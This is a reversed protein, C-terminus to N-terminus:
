YEITLANDAPPTDTTLSNAVADVLIAYKASLQGIGAVVKAKIMKWQDSPQEDGALHCIYADGLMGGIANVADDPTGKPLYDRAMKLVSLVAFRRTKDSLAIGCKALSGLEDIHRTTVTMMNGNVTIERYPNPYSVTSGTEIDTIQGDTSIDNSHLHGTFIVKVGLQYLLAAVKENDDVLYEPLVQKELSFHPVVGHHMIAIIKCGDATAKAAQEKIFEITQPKLRGATICTDKSFDNDDYRCADLALLRLGTRVQAVYSLSYRDRAIANGYGFDKYISAFEAPTVTPVRKKGDGDYQVAHPNNVDHNGPIVFVKMGLKSWKELYRSALLKHSEAEGDKTLDGAIFVVDPRYTQLRASVTDLIEESEALLKRDGALYDQFAKGDNVVLSPSMLHVDSLVALKWTSKNENDQSQALVPLGSVFVAALLLIYFKRKM